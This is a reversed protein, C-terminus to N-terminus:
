KVIVEKLRCFPGSGERILDDILNYTGAKTTPNSYLTKFAEFWEQDLHLPTEHKLDFLRAICTGVASLVLGLTIFITISIFNGLSFIGDFNSFALIVYFISPPVIFRFLPQELNINMLERRRVSDTGKKARNLSRTKKLLVM